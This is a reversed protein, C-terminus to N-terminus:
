GENLVCASTVRAEQPGYDDVSFSQGDIGHAEAVGGREVVRFGIAQDESRSYDVVVEVCNGMSSVRLGYSFHLTTVHQSVYHKASRSVRCFALANNLEKALSLTSLVRLAFSWYTVDM